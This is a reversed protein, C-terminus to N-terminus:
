TQFKFPNVVFLQDIRLSNFMIKSITRLIPSKELVIKPIFSIRLPTGYQKIVDMLPVGYWYLEDDTVSFEENPFEFSQEILDVYKNEM